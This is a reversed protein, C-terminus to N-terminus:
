GHSPVDRREIDRRRRLARGAWYPVDARDPGSTFMRCCHQASNFARPENMTPDITSSHLDPRRGIAILKNDPEVIALPAHDDPVAVGVGAAEAHQPVVVPLSM